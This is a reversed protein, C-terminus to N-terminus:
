PVGLKTSLNWKMVFSNLHSITQLDGVFLILERSGHGICMVFRKTLNQKGVCLSTFYSSLDKVNPATTKMRTSSGSKHGPM